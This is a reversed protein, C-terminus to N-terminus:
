LVDKAQWSLHGIQTSVPKIYGMQDASINMYCSAKLGRVPWLDLFQDDEKEQTRSLWLVGWRSPRHHPQRGLEVGSMDLFSRYHHLVIGWVKEWEGNRSWKRFHGYVTKYHLVRGTFFSSVPLM